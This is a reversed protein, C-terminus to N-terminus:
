AKLKPIKESKKTIFCPALDNDYNPQDYVNSYNINTSKIEDLRFLLPTVKKFVSVLIEYTYGNEDTYSISAAKVGDIIKIESSCDNRTLVRIFKEGLFVVMNHKKTIEKNDKLTKFLNIMTINEKNIEIINEM